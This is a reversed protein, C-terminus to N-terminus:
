IANLVRRDPSGLSKRRARQPETNETSFATANATELILVALARASASVVKTAMLDKAAQGAIQQAHDVRRGM